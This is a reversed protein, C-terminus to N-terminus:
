LRACTSPTWRDFARRLEDERIGAVRCAMNGEMARSQLSESSEGREADTFLSVSFGLYGDSGTVQLFAHELDTELFALSDHLACLSSVFASRRLPLGRM